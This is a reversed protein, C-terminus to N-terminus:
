NNIATEPLMLRCKVFHFKKSSHWIYFQYLVSTQFLVYISRKTTRTIFYILLWLLFHKNKTVIKCLKYRHM